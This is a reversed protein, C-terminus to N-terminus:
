RQEEDYWLIGLLNRDAIRQQPDMTIDDGHWIFNISDVGIKEVVCYM